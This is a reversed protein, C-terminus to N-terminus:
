ETTELTKMEKTDFKEKEDDVHDIAVLGWPQVQASAFLDFFVMGVLLLISTM